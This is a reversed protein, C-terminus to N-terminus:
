RILDSDKDDNIHKREEPQYRKFLEALTINNQRALDFALVAINKQSSFGIEEFIYKRLSHYTRPHLWRDNAPLGRNEREHEARHYGDWARIYHGNICYRSTVPGMYSGEVYYWWGPDSKREKKMLHDFDSDELRWVQFDSENDSWMQQGEINLRNLQQQLTGAKSKGSLIEIM